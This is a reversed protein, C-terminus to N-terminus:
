CSTGFRSLLIALDTLDVDGDGDLDGDARTAGSPMGFHTLLIALDTLDIDRDGDVDGDCPPLGPFCAGTLNIQYGGSAGSGSWAIVPGPAGPGDPTRESRFPTDIWIAGGAGDPDRDYASIGLLYTGNGPIYQNTITSQLTTGGVHDDNFVIATGDPRFLWLQTDLTAGGVTSASFNASDCIEIIYLDADTTSAIAGVIANLSGFQGAAQQATAPLDGADGTEPYTGPPPPPVTNYRLNLVATGTNASTSAVAWGTTGFTSNFASVSVYYTGAPLSGDRGNFAVGGTLPRTPSSAGFSLATLFGSGDDDDTARLNGSSDYVGVETDNSPALTSGETDIDLYLPQAADSPLTITYWVIGGPGIPIGSVTVPTGVTLTGLDTAAPQALAGAALSAAFTGIAIARNGTM